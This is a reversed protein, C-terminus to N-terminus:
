KLKSIWNKLPFGSYFARLYISLFPNFMINVDNNYFISVWTEYSLKIMFDTLIYKDIKRINKHKGNQIGWDIDNIRILQASYESLESSLPTIIYNGFECTDIFWQGHLPQNIKFDLQFVCLVL